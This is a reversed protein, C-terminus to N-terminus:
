KGSFNDSLKTQNSPAAVYNAWQGVKALKAARELERVKNAGATM